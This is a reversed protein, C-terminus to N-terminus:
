FAQLKEIARLKASRSRPNEKMEEMSPCIPKKTLVKCIGTQKLERFYKKAIRDELSHFSIVVLRGGASMAGFAERLAVDINEIENNVFIRLAQFVKTAPHLRSFYKPYVSAVIDALQLTRTIKEKRRVEYIARAIRGAYREEGYERFLRALDKVNWQNIIEGASIKGFDQNIRMDLKEDKQFSFGRGSSELHWSSIGLDFLIGDVPYFKNRSIINRINTFSDNVVTLRNEFKKNKSKGEAAVARAFLEPDLEIGLIKGRPGNESIIAAAHGGLGYTADIFNENPKPDLYYIVENLLVPKHM